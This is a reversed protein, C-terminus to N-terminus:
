SKVNKLIKDNDRSGSQKTCLWDIAAIFHKNIKYLLNVNYTSCERFAAILNVYKTWIIIM